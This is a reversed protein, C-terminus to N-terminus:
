EGESEKEERGQRRLIQGAASNMEETVLLWGGRLLDILILDTQSGDRYRMRVGIEM